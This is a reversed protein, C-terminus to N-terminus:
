GARPTRELRVACLHHDAARGWRGRLRDGRRFPAADRQHIAEFPLPGHASAIGEPWEISLDEFGLLVSSRPYQCKYAAEKACFLRKAHEGAVDSSLARLRALEEDTTISPWLEPEIPGWPEADIGLGCCTAVPAAVAVTLTDSHAISGVIGTPWLPQGGPGRVIPAEDHGLAALARRAAARGSAVELRRKEVAREVFAREAPHLAAVPTDGPAGWAFAVGPGLLERLLADLERM